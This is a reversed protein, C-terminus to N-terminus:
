TITTQKMRSLDIPMPPSHFDALSDAWVVAQAPTPPSQYVTKTKTVLAALSRAPAVQPSILIKAKGGRNADSHFLSMVSIVTIWLLPSLVTAGRAAEILIKAKGGQSEDSHSLSMVAIVTIWLLPSLVTAGCAVALDVRQDLGQDVSSNM